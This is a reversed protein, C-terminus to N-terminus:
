FRIAFLAALNIPRAESGGDGGIAINHNHAGAGDMWVGHAHDGVGSTRQAETDPHASTAAGDQRYGFGTQHRRRHYEHDHAGAGHTGANHAHHGQVDSSAAHGHWRNMSDQIQWINRGGPDVGRGDDWARVFYGRWDPLQFTTSGDGLGFLGPYANKDAQSGAMHFVAYAWLNPYAARSLMAGNLKLLRRGAPITAGPLTVVEGARIPAMLQELDQASLDMPKGEGAGRGKVTWAAMDTMDSNAFKGLFGKVQALTLVEPSGEGESTRGMLRATAINAQKAPTVAQDEIAATKVKREWLWLLADQVTQVEFGTIPQVRITTAPVGSLSIEEYARLVAQADAQIRLLVDRQDAIENGITDTVSALAQTMILNVAAEYNAETAEMAVLREHVDSFLDQFFERTAKQEIPIQYGNSRTPATL